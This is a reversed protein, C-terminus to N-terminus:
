ELGLLVLGDRDANHLEVVLQRALLQCNVRLGADIDVQLVEHMVDM